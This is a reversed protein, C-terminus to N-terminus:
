LGLRIIIENLKVPDFVANEPFGYLSIYEKYEPNIDALVSLQVDEVDGFMSIFQTNLSNLYEQLREPDYLIDFGEKYVDRETKVINLITNQTVAEQLTIILNAFVERIAEFNPFKAKNKTLAYIRISLLSYYDPTLTEIFLDMTGTTYLKMIENLQIITLTLLGFLEDVDTGAIIRSTFVSNSTSANKAKTFLINGNKKKTM